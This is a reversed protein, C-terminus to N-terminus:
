NKGTLFTLMNGTATTEPKALVLASDHTLEDDPTPDIPSVSLANLVDEKLFGWASPEFSDETWSPAIDVTPKFTKSAEQALAYVDVITKEAAQAEQALNGTFTVLCSMKMRILRAVEEGSSGRPAEGVGFEPADVNFVREIRSAQGLMLTLAKDIHQLFVLRSEAVKKWEQAAAREHQITEQLSPLMVRWDSPKHPM